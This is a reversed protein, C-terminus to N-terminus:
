PSDDQVAITGQPNMTLIDAADNDSEVDTRRYICRRSSNRPFVKVDDSRNELSKFAAWHESNSYRPFVYIQACVYCLFIIRSCM